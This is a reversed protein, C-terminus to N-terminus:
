KKNHKAKRKKELLEKEHKMHAIQTRKFKSPARQEQAFSKVGFGNVCDDMAYGIEYPVSGDFVTWHVFGRARAQHSSEHVLHAAYDGPSYGGIINTNSYIKTETPCVPTPKNYCKSQDLGDLWNYTYGIVNSFRKSYWHLDLSYPMNAVYAQYAEEKNAVQKGEVNTLSTVKRAMFADHLCGNEVYKNMIAVADDSFKKTVGPGYSGITYGIKQAEPTPSPVPTATPSPVPTATPSPTPLPPATDKPVTSCAQTLLVISLLVLHKNIKM